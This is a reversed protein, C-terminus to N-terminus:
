RSKRRLSRSDPKGAREMSNLWEIVAERRYLVTKNNVIIRPPGIRKAYWRRTTRVDKRVGHALEQETLYESRLISSTPNEPSPFLVSLDTKTKSM